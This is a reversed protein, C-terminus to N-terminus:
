ESRGSPGRITLYRPQEPKVQRKITEPVTLLAPTLTGPSQMAPSLARQAARAGRSRLMRNVGPLEPIKGLLSDVVSQDGPKLVGAKEARSVLNIERGIRGLEDLGKPQLTRFTEPRNSLLEGLQKVSVDGAQIGGKRTLDELVITNRYQPRLVKLEAAIKPHNRAISADLKDVLEYLYHADQRTSRRALATIDNRVRQIEEGAIQFQTPRAGRAMLSDFRSVLNDATSKVAGVRANAAIGAEIDRIQRLADVAPQDIKFQNGKYIKDFQKGLDDFRSAIFKESVDFDKGPSVKGTSESALKNALRQNEQEYGIAGKSSIAEEARVQAPSLKFGLKEAAKAAAERTESTYGLLSRGVGRAIGPIAPGIGGIIEGATTYGSVNKNPEKIGIYSMVDGVEKETPLLTERGLFTGREKPSSWGMYEPVTHALFHEAEGASGLLGKTAGYAFGGLKEGFGPQAVPAPRSSGGTARSSPMGLFDAASPPGLFDEANAM